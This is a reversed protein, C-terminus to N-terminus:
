QTEEPSPAAMADDFQAQLQAASPTGQDSPALLVLSSAQTLQQHLERNLADQTLASLFAQRLKQYQEPAINVVQNQQSQLRRDILQQTNIRAYTAFLGSLESTKHQLLATFDSATLGNDRLKRMEHALSNLMPLLNQRDASLSLGCQNRSYFIHCELGIQATQQSTRQVHQSLAERALESLWYHNLSASNTLPAWATDWIFLLRPNPQSHDVLTTAQKPLPALLPILSPITRKGQLGAFTKTVQEIVARSEVNGVIYLTMADPTYWNQYFSDLAHPDTLAQPSLSPDHSSLASGQLRYQWLSDQPNAPWTATPDAAHMANTVSSATIQMHGATAALWRLASPLLQPQDVPLSLNYQTRAYSTIAPPMADPKAMAEQWLSHQETPSLASNHVMALRALLHNFGQQQSSENLSGSDIVLQLEIRDTPRQPTTLLQWKFGNALRGGLWAPDPRLLEAQVTLSLASLVIGSIWLLSRTRPM